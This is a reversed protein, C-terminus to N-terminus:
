TQLDHRRQAWRGSSWVWTLISWCLLLAPVSILGLRGVPTGTWYLAYGLKPLRYLVKGMRGDVPVTWREQATNADGQTIFSVRRGSLHVARVRHSLLRTTDTPDRFTVIDGVRARVPALPETAVIDGTDITPSMSGSRVTLSRGGLALPATTALLAGAALGIASWLGAIRACRAVARTRSGRM